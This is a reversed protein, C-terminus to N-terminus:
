PEHKWWGSTLYKDNGPLTHLPTGGMADIIEHCTDVMHKVQNLEHVSHKFHFRLVPIGFRDVASPDLECWSDNNPIMEGRPLFTLVAGYHKRYADKLSKGYGSVGYQDIDAMFGYGPMQRGSGSSLEIHYARPFDLKRGELWWPMYIHGGGVGDENHPVNAALRPIYGHINTPKTTDTLFRGVKGSSNGLGQPFQSTRSNLLLRATECASAALVVVRSRIHGPRGDRTGIFTVGTAVGREDTTVHRAM